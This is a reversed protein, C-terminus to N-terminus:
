FSDIADSGFSILHTIYIYIYIYSEYCFGESEFLARWIIIMTLTVINITMTTMWAHMFIFSFSDSKKEWGKERFLCSPSYVYLLHVTFALRFLADGHM